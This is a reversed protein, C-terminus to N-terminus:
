DLDLAFGPHAGDLTRFLLIYGTPGKLDAEGTQERWFASMEERIVPDAWYAPNDGYGIFALPLGDRVPWSFANFTAFGPTRQEVEIQLDRSVGELLVDNLGFREGLLAELRGGAICRACLGSVDTVAYVLGVYLWGAPQNCVTCAVESPEFVNPLDYANPSFRFFPRDAATDM